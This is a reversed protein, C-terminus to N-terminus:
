PFRINGAGARCRCQPYGRGPEVFAPLPPTLPDFKWGEGLHKPPISQLAQIMGDDVTVVAGLGAARFFSQALWDAIPQCVKRWLPPTCALHSNLPHTL